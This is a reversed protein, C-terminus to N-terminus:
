GTGVIQQVKSALHFILLHKMAHLFSHGGEGAVDAVLDEEGLPLQVVVMAVAVLGTDSSHSSSLRALVRTQDAVLDLFGSSLQVLVDELLV